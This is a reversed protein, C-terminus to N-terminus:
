YRKTDILFYYILASSAGIIMCWVQSVYFNLLGELILVIILTSIFSILFYKFYFKIM